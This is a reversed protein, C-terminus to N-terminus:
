TTFIVPMTINMAHQAGIGQFVGVIPVVNVGLHFTLTYNGPVYATGSMPFMGGLGDLSGELSIYIIVGAHSVLFVGNSDFPFSNGTSDNTVEASMRAFSLRLGTLPFSIHESIQVIRVTLVMGQYLESSSLYFAGASMLQSYGLLHLSSGEYTTNLYSITYGAKPAQGLPVSPPATAANIGLGIVILAVAVM